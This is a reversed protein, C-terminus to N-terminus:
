RSHRTLVGVLTRNNESVHRKAYQQMSEGARPGSEGHAAVYHAIALLSLSALPKTFM